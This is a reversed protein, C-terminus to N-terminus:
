YRKSCRKFLNNVTTTSKSGNRLLNRYFKLNLNLIKTKNNYYGIIKFKKSNTKKSDISIIRFQGIKKTNKLKIKNM